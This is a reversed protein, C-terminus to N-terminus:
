RASVRDRNRTIKPNTATKVQRRRAMGRVCLGFFYISINFIIIFIVLFFNFDYVVRVYLEVLFDSFTRLFLGVNRMFVGCLCMDM